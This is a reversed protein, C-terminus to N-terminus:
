AARGTPLSRVGSVPSRVPLRPTASVPAASLLPCSMRAASPVSLKAPLQRLRRHRPARLWARHGSHSIAPSRPSHPSPHHPTTRPPPTDTTAHHTSAVSVSGGCSQTGAGVVVMTTMMIMTAGTSDIKSATMADWTSSCDHCLPRNTPDHPMPHCCALRPTPATTARCRGRLVTLHRPARRTTSRRRPDLLGLRRHAHQSRCTGATM